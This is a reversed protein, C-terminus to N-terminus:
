SQLYGQVRSRGKAQKLFKPPEPVTIDYKGKGEKPVLNQKSVLKEKLKRM